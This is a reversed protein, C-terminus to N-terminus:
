WGEIVGGVVCMVMFNECTTRRVAPESTAAWSEVVPPPRIEEMVLAPVYRFIARSPM